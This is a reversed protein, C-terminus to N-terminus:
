RGGRAAAAVLGIVISLVLLVLALKPLDSVQDAITGRDYQATIIRGWTTPTHYLENVESDSLTRNFILIEDMTTNFRMDGGNRDNFIMLYDMTPNLITMNNPDALWQNVWDVYVVAPGRIEVVPDTKITDNTMNGFIWSIEIWDPTTANWITDSRYVTASVSNIWWQNRLVVGGGAAADVSVIKVRATLNIDQSGGIRPKYEWRPIAVLIRDEPEDLIAKIVGNAGDLQSYWECYPITSGNAEVECGWPFPSQNNLM